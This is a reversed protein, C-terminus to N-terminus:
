SIMTQPMQPMWFTTEAPGYQTFPRAPAHRPQRSITRFRDASTIPYTIIVLTLEEALRQEATRATRDEKSRHFSQRAQSFDLITFINRWYRTGSGMQQVRRIVTRAQLSVAMPRIPSFHLLSHGAISAAQYTNGTDSLSDGFVIMQSFHPAVSLLRRDELPECMLRRHYVSPGLTTRRSRCNRRESRAAM